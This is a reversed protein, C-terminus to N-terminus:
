NHLGLVLTVNVTQGPNSAGLDAPPSGDAAVSITSFGCLLLAVSTALSTRHLKKLM